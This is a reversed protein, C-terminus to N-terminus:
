RTEVSSRQEPAFFILLKPTEIDFLRYSRETTNILAEFTSQLSLGHLSNQPFNKIKRFVSTVASTFRRIYPLGETNETNKYTCIDAEPGRM